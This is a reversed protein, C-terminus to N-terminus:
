LSLTRLSLPIAYSWGYTYAEKFSQRIDDREGRDLEWFMSGLPTGLLKPMLMYLIYGGPIWMDAAQKKQEYSLLTPASTCNTKTFGKLVKLERSSFGIM